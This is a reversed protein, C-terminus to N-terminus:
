AAGVLDALAEAERDLMPPRALPSRAAARRASALTRDVEWRPCRPGKGRELLADRLTENVTHQDILGADALRYANFAYRNLTVNRCTNPELDALEDAWADVREQVSGGPEGTGGSTTVTVGPPGRLFELLADTPAPRDDLPVLARLWRYPEGDIAAPPVLAYSRGLGRLEGWREGAPWAGVPVRRASTVPGLWVHRGGSPTSSVPASATEVFTNQVLEFREFFVRERAPLPMGAEKPVDFDLVLGETVVAPAGHRPWHNRIAEPERTAGWKAGPRTWFPHTHGNSFVPLKPDRGKPVPDAVAPFVADGLRAYHLAAELNRKHHADEIRGEVRGRAAGRRPPANV